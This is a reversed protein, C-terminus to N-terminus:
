GIGAKHRAAPRRLSSKASAVVVLPAAMAVASNVTLAV